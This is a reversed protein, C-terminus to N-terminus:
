FRWWDFWKGLPMEMLVIGRPHGDADKAHGTLVGARVFGVYEAAKIAEAEREAVAEFFLRELGNENAIAALEHMM